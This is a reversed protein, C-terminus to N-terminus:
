PKEKAVWQSWNQVDEPLRTADIVLSRPDTLALLDAPLRHLRLRRGWADSASEHRTEVADLAAGWLSAMAAPTMKTGKPEAAEWTRVAQSLEGLVLYFRDVLVTGPDFTTEGRLSVAAEVEPAPPLAAVRLLTAAAANAGRVRGLALAEADIGGFPAVAQPQQRLGSLESAGPLPALQGLSEDVGILGVAAPGPAGAVRTDVALHAVQGPAYSPREPALRVDLPAKVRVFFFVRADGWEVSAWGQWDSPVSFSASRSAPDVKAEVSQYAHRLWLKEPLEGTFDPGRLLEVTVTAGPDVLQQTARLRVLPVSGPTMRLRTSGITEKGRRATVLLEYGVMVTDQPRQAESTEPAEVSIRALGVSAAASEDAEGGEDVEGRRPRPWDLHAALSTVCDLTSASFADGRGPVWRAELTQAGPDARWELLRPLTGSHVTPPLCDRAELLAESILGELFSPVVPVGTLAVEFSPLDSEDFRWSVDFLRESGSAFRAGQLVSGVCAGLKGEPPAMPGQDGSARVALGVRVSTADRAYRTCPELRAELADFTMRDALSVEAGLRDELGERVVKDAPPPPRFPLAPVVVNVPPGPDLQLSAVGDEDVRADTGRDTAEWLRKVNLTVDDLVRGDPSTARLFLRNNFGQVLGDALETVASVAIADQSLLITAGGEVRDNAADVASIDAALTAVGQLDGPVVPLELEFTGQPGTTAVRPLASGDVWGSPPPWAGSTSWSLELKAGAVPAGSTYRVRGTLRPRENPRYFPRPTATELSFRPLTFPKVTFTRTQTTAGTTYTVTWAGSAAGRDLPFSGSTVGWSGSPAREELLVEGSPDAVRWTGPREELPTLDSAKLVLARFQVTNGPEYLPRDTLLHVRAPTFLALPLDLSSTDVPSAVRVRLTYEGDNVRPLEVEGVLGEGRRRWGERPVLPTEGAASVFALSPTFRSVPESGQADSPGTAYLATASVSVSGRGGRTLGNASVHLVQRFAGDPCARVWLGYRLGASLCVRTSAIALAVVVLAGLALAFRWRRARKTRGPM